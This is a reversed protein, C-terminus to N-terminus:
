LGSQIPCANLHLHLPQDIEGGVPHEPGLREGVVLDACQAGEDVVETLRLDVPQGFELRGRLVVDLRHLVQHPFAQVRQPEVVDGFQGVEGRGAFVDVVEGVRERDTGGDVLDPKRLEAGHDGLQARLGDLVAVVGHQRARM